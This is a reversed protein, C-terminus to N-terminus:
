SNTINWNALMDLGENIDAAFSIRNRDRAPVYGDLGSFFAEMTQKWGTGILILPKEPQAGILLQNWMLSIEALTGIGGPLAFAADCLRILEEIRDKLSTFSIEEKVWQNAKVPRFHEIETCTVGIVHGGAENAGRSVAEMTGVYGGNIVTHGNQALSRGFDYAQQYAASGPKPSAGGFITIKM